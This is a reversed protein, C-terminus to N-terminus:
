AGEGFFNARVKSYKTVTKVILDYECIHINPQIHPM